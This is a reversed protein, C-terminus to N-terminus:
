LSVTPMDLSTRLSLVQVVYKYNDANALVWSRLDDTLIRKWVKAALQSPICFAVPVHTSTDSEASGLRLADLDLNGIGPPSSRDM